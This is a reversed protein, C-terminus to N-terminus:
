VSVKTSRATAPPVKTHHVKGWDPKLPGAFMWGIVVIPALALATIAAIRARDGRPPSAKLRWAVSALVGVACVADIAWMWHSRTDSGTGIAHVIAIPWMAYTLLHVKRWAAYGIRVRILSTVVVALLLDVAVAGLGLWIPRYGARFPIVADIWGIPAYGDIVTTVVHLGIFVLVLLSVNRHTLQVVLRPMRTTGWSLLTPTGTVFALTLLLLSV